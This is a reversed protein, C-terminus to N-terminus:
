YSGRPHSENCAFVVGHIVRAAYRFDAKVKASMCWEFNDFYFYRGKVGKKYYSGDVHYQAQLLFKEPVPNPAPAGFIKNSTLSKM